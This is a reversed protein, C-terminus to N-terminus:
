GESEKAICHVVQSWEEGTLEAERTDDDMDIM